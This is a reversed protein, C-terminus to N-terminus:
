LTQINGSRYLRILTNMDNAIRDARERMSTNVLLNSQRYMATLLDRNMMLLEHRMIDEDDRRGPIDNRIDRLLNCIELYDGEPIVNSHKDILELVKILKQESM